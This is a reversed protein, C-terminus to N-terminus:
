EGEGTPLPQDVFLYCGPDGNEREFKLRAKAGAPPDPFWLIVTGDPGPIGEDFTITEAYGDGAELTFRDGHQYRAKDPDFLVYPLGEGGLELLCSDTADPARRCVGLVPGQVPPDVDLTEEEAEGAPAAVPEAPVRPDLSLVLETLAEPRDEDDADAATNPSSDTV